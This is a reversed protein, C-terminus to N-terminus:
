FFYGLSICFFAGKIYLDLLIHLRLSIKFIYIFIGIELLNIYTYVFHIKPIGPKVNFYLPFRYLYFM